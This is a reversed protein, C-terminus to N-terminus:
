HLVADYAGPQMMNHNRTVGRQDVGFAEEGVWDIFEQGKAFTKVADIVAQKTAFNNILDSSTTWQYVGDTLTANPLTNSSYDTDTAIAGWNADANQYVNYGGSIINGAYISKDGAGKAFLSNVILAVRGANGARFIGNKNGLNGVITTNALMFYADGNVAVSSNGSAATGLITTNNMCTYGNGAHIATGWANVAYNDHILCNNLFLFSLADSTNIAGGRGNAVNNVFEVNNLLVKAKNVKLGAGGDNTIAYYNFNKIICNNMQLTADGSGGAAVQFARVKDQADLQFQGDFTCGDFIIDTQNGLVLMSNGTGSADSNTNRVFATVYKRIDRKGLDTGTSAPDYGGQIIIEVQKSYGSYEIKVGSNDKTMEYNGGAVYINKGDLRAANAATIAGDSNTRILNRLADVGMANDWDVGTANGSPQVKVYFADQRVEEVDGGTLTGSEWPTVIPDDLHIISGEVRLTFEYSKGGQMAPIGPLLLDEGLYNLYIFTADNKAEGPVVIATYTSGNQGAKGGDPATILPNILTTADEVKGNTFGTYSGIRVGQAKNLDSVDAVKIVVKAMKRNMPLRLIGSGDNIANEIVCTMYDAKAMDEMRKQNTPVTFSLANVGSVVPYFASYTLPEEGWRLYYNDTPTWTGESLTFSMSGDECSIQIQDGENFKAQIDGTGLPNSRTFMNGITPAIKIAATDLDYVAIDKETDCATMGILM